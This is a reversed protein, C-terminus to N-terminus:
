AWTSLRAVTPALAIRVPTPMVTSATVGAPEVLSKMAHPKAAEPACDLSTLTEADTPIL